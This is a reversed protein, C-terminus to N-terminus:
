QVAIRTPQPAERRAVSIHLVGDRYTAQVNSPDADDPQPLGRPDYIRTEGGMRTLLRAAEEIMLRSYSRERLSGYLLLFRPPHDLEPPTLASLTPPDLYAPTLAPFDTM